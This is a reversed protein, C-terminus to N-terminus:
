ILKIKRLYNIYHKIYNRDIQPWHFGFHHLVARSFESVISINSTYDVKQQKDFDNIIGSLLAKKEPSSSLQQVKHSFSEHSLPQLVFGEENLQQILDKIMVHNNDYLHFVSFDKYDNQMITVIAQACADVPTFEVYSSLLYDPISGIQIFALLRNVFANETANLQFVGDHYRSTINGLRLIQADLSNKVQNELILKEADFKSKIYLNELVQGIYLNKECFNMKKLITNQRTKADGDLSMNGSISLSSLHLLRKKNQLCFHIMNKTADVNIATFKNIDGYHKVMAAANIVVSIQEKLQSLVLHSLNFNEKTVEGELIKIRKGIESDFYTGFYFHLVRMFRDYASIGNKSRVVCFITGKDHLLLSALIHVGVFGNAGLLLVHNNTNTLLNSKQFLSIDNKELQKNIECYDYTDIINTKEETKNKEYYSSLEKITKYRFFDAYDISINHSLLEIKYKIILLSDVGLDFINDQIGVKTHLLKEWCDCLIRELPTTPGIYDSSNNQISYTALIKTDIKGNLTIPFNDLQTFHNPIMYEPLTTLLHTRIQSPTIVKRITYFASLYSNNEIKQYLVVAKDIEPLNMLQKEIESLEIRLGHIKIQNDKRGLYAIEACPLYKGRDGTRYMTGTGFPNPVFAKKTAEINKLYGKSVGDGVVCIEGPIGIPCLNLDSNCILLETNYIPKGITIQDKKMIKKNSCCATIESPGYGNFITAKTSHELKEYLSSTFVEGGLQIIKLDSLSKRSIENLLMLEIRSPTTLIFDIKQELLLKAIETPIKQQEQNTLVLTKGSLLPVFTEVIFMDFSVASISIFKECCDTHLQKQYSLIMNLIGLNKLMIGKPKGTSGSTYIVCFTNDNSPLISLDLCSYKDLPIDEIFSIKWDIKKMHKDQILLAADSDQLMYTIREPPLNPDILLYSAGTKLIGLITYYIAPTRSLMVAITDNKSISFNNLLYNAFQNSTNNLNEYTITQGEFIIAPKTKNEKAKEYFTRILAKEKNYKRVTNNYEYLIFDKETESVLPIDAIRIQINELVQHLIECFHDALRTIDNEDFLSTAYEFQITLHDTYPKVEVTLDFKSISSEPEYFLDSPMNNQYVFMTDFLANRSASPKIQLDKLLLDFPYDQHDFAEIYHSTVQKVFSLFSDDSSLQTRLVLTNVFMGITKELEPHTRGSTPTGVLIDKQDTYHYLLIYYICLLFSFPTTHYQKCFSLINNKEEESIIRSIHAGKYDKKEPRSFTTPLTLLPLEGALLELWYEKDQQVKTSHLQKEEWIAFDKYQLSYSPLTKGNYLEFLEEVLISVSVGDCIIHHLDILLIAKKNEIRVLLARFLPANSLNFPKVFSKFTSDIQKEEICVTELKYDFSPSIKQVVEEKQFIFSTRLSDHRKILKNLAQQLRVKDPITEFLIGGPINYVTSNPNAMCTLFIRKQAHSLPYSDFIPAPTIVTKESEQKDPKIEQIYQALSKITTYEFIEKVQLKVDFHSYIATILKIACLSDGGLEFFDSNRGIEDFNLINKWIFVLQKETETQPKEKEYTITAEPLKSKDVKGNANLPLTEMKIFHSPVMYYPLKKRLEKKIDEIKLNPDCTLYACISDIQNVSKIIVSANDISSLNKLVSEIEELEIRLGRLKIQYDHRGAFEIEGKKDFLALDGSLYLEGKGFPNPIFSTQTAKENYLYGDSVGEGAICLQGTVGVPCLNIDQNCIYIQVNPYPKGISIHESSVIEKTSCCATTESPGYGNFIHANTYTKVKEFFSSTLTEGGLQMAKLYTLCTNTTSSSLLAELKSPTILMFEPKQRRILQSLDIPNKQEEENALVLKKGSLLCIWIEAAFMDFSVACISLFTKYKKINMMSQYGNVLNLMSSRKLLIGKPKGTSGSTYVVSLNRQNSIFSTIPKSSLSSIELKNLSVQPISFTLHSFCTSTLLLSTHSNEVMYYLREEPLSSDMIMYSCGSKLIAIMSFVIEPSRKLLIGVVQNPRTFTTIHNALCNTYYDIEEYSYNRNEFVLAIKKANKRVMRNWQDLFSFNPISKSPSNFKSLIIKKEQHTIMEYNKLTQKSSSLIQKIISLIRFHLNIIDQKTLKATQYDYYIDFHGANDMDYFHINLTELIHGTFIWNTHYPLTSEASNDKANQVSLVVDFLNETINFQNKIYNTLFSYPYKQHRFISIQRLNVKQLFEEFTQNPNIEIQFPVTSIFMGATHKEKANTRNLVPTGIIPSTNNTLKYLYLSYVALFFTYSSCHLKECLENIKTSIKPELPFSIRKATTLFEQEKSSVFPTVNPEQSFSEKWFNEDKQFRNSHLYENNQKIIDLYSPYSSDTITQNLVLASYDTIVQTIFQSMSWADSIIHHFTVNLGGHGNSFQFLTFRFLASDYFSFPTSIIKEDLKKLDQKTNLKVIPISFPHYEEVFQKPEGKEIVIRFRIAENKKVYLNIAQELLSLNVATDIIIDGSIMNLNSGSAFQETMYISQQSTTLDYFQKEM